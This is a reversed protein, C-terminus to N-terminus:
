PLKIFMKSLWGANTQLQLLYEGQSLQLIPIQLAMENGTRRSEGFVSGTGIGIIRYYLIEAPAIITIRETAPNPYIVFDVPKEM